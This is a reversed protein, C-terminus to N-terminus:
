VSCGSRYLGPKARLNIMACAPQDNGEHLSLPISRASRFAVFLNFSNLLALLTRGTIWRFSTAPDTCHVYPVCVTGQWLKHLWSRIM